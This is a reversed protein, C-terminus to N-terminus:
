TALTGFIGSDVPFRTLLGSFRWFHIKSAWDTFGPVTMGFKEAWPIVWSSAFAIVAYRSVSLHDSCGTPDLTEPLRLLDFPVLWREDREEKVPAVLITRTVDESLESRSSKTDCTSASKVWSGSPRVRQM